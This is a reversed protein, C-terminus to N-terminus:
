LAAPAPADHRLKANSPNAYSLKAQDPRSQSRKNATAASPGPTALPHLTTNANLSAMKKALLAGLRKEAPLDSMLLTFRPEVVQGVRIARGLMQLVQNIDREAQAVIM